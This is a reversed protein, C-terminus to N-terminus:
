DEYFSSQITSREHDSPFLISYFRPSASNITDRLQEAVAWETNYEILHVLQDWKGKAALKRAKTYHRGDWCQEALALANSEYEMQLGYHRSRFYYNSELRALALLTQKEAYRTVTMKVRRICCVSHFM